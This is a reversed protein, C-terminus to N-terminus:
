VMYDFRLHDPANCLIIEQIIFYGSRKVHFRAKARFYQYNKKQQFHAWNVSLWSNKVSLALYRDIEIIFRDVNLQLVAYKRLFPFM